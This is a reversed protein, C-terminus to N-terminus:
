WLITGDPDMEELYYRRLVRAEDLLMAISHILFLMMKETSCFLYRKGFKEPSVGLPNGLAKSWVIGRVSMPLGKQWLAKTRSEDKRCWYLM